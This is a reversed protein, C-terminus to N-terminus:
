AGSPIEANLMARKKTIYIYISLLLMYANRNTKAKLNVYIPDKSKRISLIWYQIVYWDYWLTKTDCFLVQHQNM